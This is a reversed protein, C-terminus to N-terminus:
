CLGYDLAYNITRRIALPTFGGVFGFNQALIVVRKQGEKWGPVNTALIQFAVKKLEGMGTREESTLAEIDAWYSDSDISVKCREGETLTTGTPVSLNRKTWTRHRPM